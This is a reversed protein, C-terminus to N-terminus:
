VHVCLLMGCMYVRSLVAVWLFPLRNTSGDAGTLRIISVIPVVHTLM